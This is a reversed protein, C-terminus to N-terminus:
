SGKDKPENIYEYITELVGDDDDDSARIQGSGFM